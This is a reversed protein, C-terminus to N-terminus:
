DWKDNDQKDSARYQEPGHDFLSFLVAVAIALIVCVVVLGILAVM